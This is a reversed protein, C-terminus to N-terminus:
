LGSSNVTQHKSLASHRANLTIFTIEAFSNYYRCDACKCYELSYHMIVRVALVSHLIKLSVLFNFIINEVLVLVWLSSDASCDPSVRVALWILLRKLM